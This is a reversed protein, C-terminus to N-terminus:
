SRSKDGARLRRPIGPRYPDVVLALLRHMENRVARIAFFISALYRLVPNKQRDVPIWAGATCIPLRVEWWREGGFLQARGM